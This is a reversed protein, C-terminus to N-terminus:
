IFKQHRSCGSTTAGGMITPSAYFAARRNKPLKWRTGSIREWITAGKNKPREIPTETADIVVIDFARESPSLRAGPCASLRATPWRTKAGNSTAIPRVKAHQAQRRCGEAQM